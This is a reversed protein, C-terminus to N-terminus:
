DGGELVTRPLASDLTQDGGSEQRGNEICDGDEEQSLDSFDVSLRLSKWNILSMYKM